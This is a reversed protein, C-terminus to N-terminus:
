QPINLNRIDSRIVLIVIVIVVIIVGLFVLQLNVVLMIVAQLGRDTCTELVACM